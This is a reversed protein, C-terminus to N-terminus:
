KAQQQTPRGEEELEHEIEPTVPLSSTITFTLEKWKADKGFYLAKLKGKDWRAKYKGPPILGRKVDDDDFKGRMGRWFLGAGSGGLKSYCSVCKIGYYNGDAVSVFSALGVFTQGKGAEADCNPTLSAVTGSADPTETGVGLVTCHTATGDPKAYYAVTAWVTLTLPYEKPQGLGASSFALTGVLSWVLHRM